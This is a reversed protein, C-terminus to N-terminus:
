HVFFGTLRMRYVSRALAMLLRLITRATTHIGASLMTLLQNEVCIHPVELLTDLIDRRRGHGSTEGVREAVVASAWKRSLASPNSSESGSFSSRFSRWMSFAGECREGEPRCKFPYFRQLEGVARMSSDISGLVDANESRLSKGCVVRGQIGRLLALLSEDMDFTPSGCRSDLDSLFLVLEEHIHSSVAEMLSPNFIGKMAQRHRDHQEADSVMLSDSGLFARLPCVFSSSKRYNQTSLVFRVDHPNSCVVVRRQYM